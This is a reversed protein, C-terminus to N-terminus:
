DMDERSEGFDLPPLLDPRDQLVDMEGFSLEPMMPPLPSAAPPNIKLTFPPIIDIRPLTYGDSLKKLIRPGDALWGIYNGHTSYIMRDSSIWGIWDGECNFIYPYALFAAIDGVTTYIPVLSTDTTM